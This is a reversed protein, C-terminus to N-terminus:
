SEHDYILKTNLAQIKSSKSNLTKIVLIDFQVKVLSRPVHTPRLKNVVGQNYM